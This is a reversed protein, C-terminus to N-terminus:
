TLVDCLLCLFTLCFLTLTLLLLSLLLTVTFHGSVFIVVRISLMRVARM